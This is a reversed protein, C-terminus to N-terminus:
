TEQNPLQATFIGIGLSGLGCGTFCCKTRGPCDSDDRCSNRCPAFTGQCGKGLVPKMCRISCGWHCCKEDGQCDSDSNCRVDCTTMLGPELQPCFGGWPHGGGPDQPCPAVLCGQGGAGPSLAPTPAPAVWALGQPHHVGCAIATSPLNWVWPM